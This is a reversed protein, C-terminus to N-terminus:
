RQWATTKGVEEELEGVMAPSEGESVQEYILAYMEWNYAPDEKIGNFIDRKTVRITTEDNCHWWQEGVPNEKDKWERRYCIWHGVSISPGGHVLIARLEYIPLQPNSVDGDIRIHDRFSGPQVARNTGAVYPSFDLSPDYTVRTRLKWSGRATYQAVNFFELILISPLQIIEVTESWRSYFRIQAARVGDYYAKVRRKRESDSMEDKPNPYPPIKKRRTLGLEARSTDDLTYNESELGKEATQLRDKLERKDGESLPESPNELVRRLIQIMGIGMCKDCNIEDGSRAKIRRHYELCDDVAASIPKKRGPKCVLVSALTEESLIVFGCHLCVQKRLITTEFPNEANETEEMLRANLRTMLEVSSHQEARLDGLGVQGPRPTKTLALSDGRRFKNLNKFVNHMLITRDKTKEPDAHPTKANKEVWQPYSTSALGQIGAAFYCQNGITHQLGGITQRKSGIIWPDATRGLKFSLGEEDRTATRLGTSFMSRKAHRKNSDGSSRKSVRSKVRDLIKGTKFNVPRRLASEKIHYM